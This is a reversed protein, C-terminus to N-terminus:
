TREDMNDKFNIDAILSKGTKTINEAGDELIVVTDEIRVGYKGDVYIGPEVTVVMGPELVAESTKALRPAEHIELGIGHGLGHKFCGEYGANEIIDRAIKDADACRVGSKLMDLVATQARLVTDFVLIQEASIEGIAITRTMDSHWGDLKAGYDLTLMDGYQLKRKTPVAHPFEGNEGSAAIIDFSVDDAGLSLVIQELKHAIELESLGPRIFKLIEIFAKDTIEQANKIKQIEEATKIERGATLKKESM